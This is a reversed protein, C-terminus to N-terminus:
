AIRTANFYVEDTGGINGTGYSVQAKIYLTVASNTNLIYTPAVSCVSISNNSLVQKGTRILTAGNYMFLCYENNYGSASAGYVLMGACCLWVGAGPIDLTFITQATSSIQTVTSRTGSITYGISTTTLTPVSSYSYQIQNPIVVKESATGLVIQNSATIRAGSGIATSNSFNDGNSGTNYGLYTNNSGTTTATGANGAAAGIATNNAGTTNQLASGGVATNNNSVTNLNLANIGFATNTIGTTNFQLSSFGVATNYLGTATNANLASSGFATNTLVAGAGRGVTLGNILADGAVTLMKTVDTTGIGVYGGTPQLSLHTTAAVGSTYGQISAYSNFNGLGANVMSINLGQM